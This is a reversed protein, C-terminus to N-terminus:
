MLLDGFNNRVRKTFVRLLKQHGEYKVYFNVENPRHRRKDLYNKLRM